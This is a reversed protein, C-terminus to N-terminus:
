LTGLTEFFDKLLLVRFWHRQGTSLFWSVDGYMIYAILMILNSNLWRSSRCSGPSFDGCAILMILNSNLWRKYVRVPIWVMKYGRALPIQSLATYVIDHLKLSM